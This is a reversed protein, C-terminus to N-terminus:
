MPMNGASPLGDFDGKLIFLKRLLSVKVIKSLLVFDKVVALLILLIAFNPLSINYFVSFLAKQPFYFSTQLKKICM